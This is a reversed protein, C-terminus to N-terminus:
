GVRAPPFLECQGGSAIGRGPLLPAPNLVRTFRKVKAVPLAPLESPPGHKLEVPWPPRSSGSQQSDELGLNHGQAHAIAFWHMQRQMAILAPVRSRFSSPRVCFYRRGSSSDETAVALTRESLERLGLSGGKGSQKRGLCFCLLYLASVFPLLSRLDERDESEEEEKRKRKGTMQDKKM